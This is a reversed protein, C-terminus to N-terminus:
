AGKKHATAPKLKIRKGAPKIQRMKSPSIRKPKQATGAIALSAICLSAVILVLVLANSFKM